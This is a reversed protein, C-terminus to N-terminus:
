LQHCKPGGLPGQPCNQAFYSGECVSCKGSNGSAKISGLEKKHMKKTDWTQIWWLNVVHHTQGAYMSQSAQDKSLTGIGKAEEFANQMKVMKAAKWSGKSEQIKIHKYVAANLMTKLQDAIFLQILGHFNNVSLSRTCYLLCSKLWSAFHM